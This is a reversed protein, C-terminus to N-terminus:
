EFVDVCLTVGQEVELNKETAMSCPLLPPALQAATSMLIRSRSRRLFEMPTLHQAEPETASFADEPQRNDSVKMSELLTGEDHDVSGLGSISESCDM